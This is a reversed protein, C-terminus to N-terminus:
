VLIRAPKELLERIRCVFSASEAGDVIRHDFTLSLGMKRRSAVKNDVLALEEEIKCVGLIAAQPQNIIPTFSTIGFMGVNSVTFTGGELEEPRIKGERGRQVLDAIKTSLQRISWLNANEVVPAILGQATAVALNLNIAGKYILENGDLVSNFKPNEELAIATAKLIFDNITIRQGIDERLEKRIQLLATVDAEANITVAPIERHSQLMRKGVTRGINTLPVRRDRKQALPTEETREFSLVDIQRVEGSRGTPPIDKLSVGREEAIRKASPTAKIKEDGVTTEPLKTPGAVKSVSSDERHKTAKQVTGSSAETEDPLIEGPSGLWAMVATAKVTKHEPYLISLVTGDADSEVEMTAKDTEVEAVVDGKKVIDGEKIFWKLLVGEEMAMGAKPMIISKAM